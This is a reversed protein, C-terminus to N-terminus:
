SKGLREATIAGVNTELKINGQANNLEIDGTDTQLHISATGLNKASVKGVDAKAQLSQVLGAVTVDGVDTQLQVKLNEPVNLILDISCNNCQKLKIKGIMFLTDGKIELKFDLNEPKHFRKTITINPTKGGAIVRIEGVDNQVNLKNWDGRELSRTEVTEKISGSRSFVQAGVHGLSRVTAKTAHLIGNCASIAVVAGCALILLEIKFGRV